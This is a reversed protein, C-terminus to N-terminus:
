AFTFLLISFNFEKEYSISAFWFFYDISEAMPFSIFFILKETYIGNKMGYLYYLIAAIICLVSNYIGNM